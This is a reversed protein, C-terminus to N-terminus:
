EDFNEQKRERVWQALAGNHGCCPEAFTLPGEIYSGSVGAFGEADLPFFAEGLRKLYSDGLKADCAACHNMWYSLDSTHSLDLRFRGQSHSDLAAHATVPLPGSMTVTLM